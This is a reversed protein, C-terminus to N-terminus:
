GIPALGIEAPRHGCAYQPATPSDRFLDVLHRKCLGVFCFRCVGVAAADSGSMACEHCLM